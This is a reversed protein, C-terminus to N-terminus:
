RSMSDHPNSGWSGRHLRLTSGNDSRGWLPCSLFRVQLGRRAFCTSERQAVRGHHQGRSM